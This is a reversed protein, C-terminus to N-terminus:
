LLGRDEPLGLMLNMCQVGSGSAGKGLNDYRAILLIRDKNGAVYIEADNRGAMASASLFGNEPRGDDMGGTDGFSTVHIFPEDAYRAVLAEFIDEKAAVADGPMARANRQLPVTVEM